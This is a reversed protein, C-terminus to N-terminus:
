EEQEADETIIELTGISKCDLAEGSQYSPHRITYVLYWLMAGLVAALLVYKVYRLLGKIKEWLRFGFKRPRLANEEEMKELQAAAEEYDRLLALINRYEGRGIRNMLEELPPCCRDELEPAFIEKLRNLLRIWVEEERVTDVRDPEQLIYNFYVTGSDDILLNNGSLVEMQLYYPLHLIVIRQLLSRGAQLREKRTMGERIRGEWTRCERYRFVLYLFGDKPFYDLFDELPLNQKQEACFPIFRHIDKETKLVVLLCKGNEPRDPDRAIIIEYKQGDEMKQLVEYSRNLTQIRM